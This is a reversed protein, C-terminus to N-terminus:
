ARASKGNFEDSSHSRCTRDIFLLELSPQQFTSYYIKLIKRPNQIEISHNKADLKRNFNMDIHTTCNCVPLM